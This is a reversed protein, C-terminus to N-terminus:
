TRIRKRRSQSESARLSDVDEGEEPNEEGQSGGGQSAEGQQARQQNMQERTKRLRKSQKELEAFMKKAQPNEIHSCYDAYKRHREPEIVEGKDDSCFFEKIFIKMREWLSLFPPIM